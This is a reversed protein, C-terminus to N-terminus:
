RPEAHGRRWGCAATLMSPLNVNAWPVLCLKCVAHHQDHAKCHHVWTPVAGPLARSLSDASGGGGAVAQVTLWLHALWPSPKQTTQWECPWHFSAPPLGKLTACGAADCVRCRRAPVPPLQVHGHAGAAGQLLCWAEWPEGFAGPAVSAGLTAFGPACLGQHPQCLRTSATCSTAM